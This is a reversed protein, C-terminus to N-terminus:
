GNFRELESADHVSEFRQAGNRDSTTGWYVLVKLQESSGYEKIAQGVPGKTGKRVVRYDVRM